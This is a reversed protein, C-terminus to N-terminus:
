QDSDNRRRRLQIRIPTGILDFEKRLSKEIFRKHADSINEPRNYFLIFTPPEIGQQTAYFLRTEGRGGSAPARAELREMFRNLKSTSVRQQRRDQVRFVTELCKHVSKGTLASIFVMPFDALFPHKAQVSERFIGRDIGRKECIDWKNVALVLGSGSELAQGMVRLDQVALGEDGDIMAICIDSKLMSNNARLGSYYEIQADVKSRRRLGATDMLVFDREKWNLLVRTTDRTTGPQDHVVSISAGALRNTLTSKGVNPRGILSVKTPEMEQNLDYETGDAYCLKVMADLLDGSKRGSIASVPIPDGLGLRIFDGVESERKENDVKNVAVLAKGGNRQIAGAIQRDLDTAGITSDVLLVVLDAEEVAQEAQARVAVEIANKSGPMYGGTDVITLVKGDWEVQEYIRDRTVGAWDDTIAARSGILRNFLTSKGVNPRGVIAIIPRQPGFRTIGLGSSPSVSVPESTM